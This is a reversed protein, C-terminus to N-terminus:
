NMHATWREEHEVERGAVVEWGVYHKGELNTGLERADMDEMRDDDLKVGLDEGFEGMAMGQEDEKGVLEGYSGGLGEGNRRRRGKKSGNTDEEVSYVDYGETGNGEM